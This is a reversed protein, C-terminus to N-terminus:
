DKFRLGEAGGPVKCRSGWTRLGLDYLMTKAARAAHVVGPNRPRRPRSGRRTEM